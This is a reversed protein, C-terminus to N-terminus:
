NGDRDSLPEFEPRDTWAGLDVALRGPDSRWPVSAHPSTEVQPSDDHARRCGLLAAPGHTPLLWADPLVLRCYWRDEYARRHIELTGDDVGEFLRWPGVEPVTLAIRPEDGHAEPGIFLTVSEIGRVTDASDFSPLRRAARPAAEADPLPRRCDFFVEWRGGLRRLQATTARESPVAAFQRMQIEGLTLPARFPGFRVGPPRAGVAPPPFDMRFQRNEYAILLIHARVPAPQNLVLPGPEPEEARDLRVHM